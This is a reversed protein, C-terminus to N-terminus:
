AQGCVYEVLLQLAEAMTTNSPILITQGCLINPGTYVVCQADLVESCPQPDPCDISNCPVASTLPTDECGCPTKSCSTCSM